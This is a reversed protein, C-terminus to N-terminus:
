VFDFEEGTDEDAFAAFDDVAKTTGDMPEGEKRLMVNNLGLAVGKNGEVKFSYVNLSIHFYCGSFGMEEFDRDEAPKNYKNVVQPKRASNANMFHMGTYDSEDRETDGDRIPTKLMTLKIKEGFAQKAVSEIAKKLEELQPDNKDIIMQLGYKGAETSDTAKRPKQLSVYSGRVNKLIIKM